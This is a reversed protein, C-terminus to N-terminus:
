HGKIEVQLAITGGAPVKYDALSTSIQPIKDHEKEFNYLKNNIILDDRRTRISKNEHGIFISTKTNTLIIHIYLRIFVYKVM